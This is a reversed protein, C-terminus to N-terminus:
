GAMRCRLRANTVHPDLGKTVAHSILAQRKKMLLAVQREKLAVLDDIEATKGDLFAAIRRQQAKNLIPFPLNGIESANIAPYSVGSSRAVIEDICYTSRIWYFLFKPDVNSLPTLVAFGTSCILTSEKYHCFAIAKLYTRVTSVLVDGVQVVRRARSPATGFELEETAIIEGDSDVNGIDIYKIRFNEQTNEALTQQNITVLYKLPMCKWDSPLDSQWPVDRDSDRQLSNSNTM